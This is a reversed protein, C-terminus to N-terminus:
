REPGTGSSSVGVGKPTRRSCVPGKSGPRSSPPRHYAEGFNWGDPDPNAQPPLLLLEDNWCYPRWGRGGIILGQSDWTWAGKAAAAEIFSSDPALSLITDGRRWAGLLDERSVRPNLEVHEWFRADLVAGRVFMAELALPLALWILVSRWRRRCISQVACVVGLVVAFPGVFVAIFLPSM